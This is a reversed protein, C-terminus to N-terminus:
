PKGLRNFSKVDLLVCPEMDQWDNRDRRGMFDVRMALFTQFKAYYLGDLANVILLFPLGTSQSLSKAAMWKDLSLMYGGLRGIDSMAYNRCKVEAWAVVGKDARIAYDLGYKIPLKAFSCDWISAVADAVNRERELDEGTEYLPRM